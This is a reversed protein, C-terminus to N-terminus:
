PQSLNRSLYQYMVDLVFFNSENTQSLDLQLVHSGRAIKCLAHRNDKNFTTSYEGRSVKIDVM